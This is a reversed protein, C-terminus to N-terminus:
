PSNQRRPSRVLMLGGAPKYRGWPTPATPRVWGSGSAGRACPWQLTPCGCEIVASWDEITEDFGTVGAVEARGLRRLAQCRDAGRASRFKSSAVSSWHPNATDLALGARAAIGPM